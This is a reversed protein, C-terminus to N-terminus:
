LVHYIVTMECLLFFQVSVSDHLKTFRRDLANRVDTSGIEFDSSLPSVKCAVCYENPYIGSPETPIGSPFVYYWAYRNIVRLLGPDEGATNTCLATARRWEKHISSALPISAVVCTLIPCQAISQCSSARIRRRYNLSLRFLMRLGEDSTSTSELTKRDLNSLTSFISSKCPLRVISLRESKCTPM